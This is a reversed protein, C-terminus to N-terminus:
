TDSVGVGYQLCQASRGSVAGDGGRAARQAGQAGVKCPTRPALYGAGKGKM